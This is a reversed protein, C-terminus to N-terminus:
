PNNVRLHGGAPDGNRANLAAFGQGTDSLYTGGVALVGGGITQTPTLLAATNNFNWYHILAGPPAAAAEFQVPDSWYSWNGTGDKHRVRVRYTKGPEAIGLPLEFAGPTGTLEGSSWVTEIEYKCPTGTVYGPIGPAQIEAIRWEHAAYTGAGQPDSFASSTFALQHV